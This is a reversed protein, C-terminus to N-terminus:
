ELLQEQIKHTHKYYLNAELDQGSDVNREKSSLILAFEKLNHYCKKDISIVAKWLNLEGTDYLFLVM